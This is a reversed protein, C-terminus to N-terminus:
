ITYVWPTCNDAGGLKLTNGDNWFSVGYGTATVGRAGRWLSGTVV